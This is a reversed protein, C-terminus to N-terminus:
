PFAELCPHCTLHPGAAGQSIGSDVRISMDSGATPSARPLQTPNPTPRASSIFTPPVVTHPHQPCEPVAQSNATTVLHTMFSLM